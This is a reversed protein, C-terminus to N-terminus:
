SIPSPVVPTTTRAPDSRSCASTNSSRPIWGSRIASPYSIAAFTATASSERTLSFNSNLGSSMSGRTRVHMVVSDDLITFLHLRSIASIQTCATMATASRSLFSTLRSRILTSPFTPPFSSSVTSTFPIM